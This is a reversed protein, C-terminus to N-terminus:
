CVELRQEDQNWEFLPFDTVWLLAHKSGDIEGLQGAVYQRVSDLAKNVTAAPGAALLLLDGQLTCYSDSIALLGM